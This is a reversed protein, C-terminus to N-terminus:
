KQNLKFEAKINERHEIVPGFKKEVKESIEEFPLVLRMDNRLAEPVRVALDAYRPNLDARNVIIRAKNLLIPSPDRYTLSILIKTTVENISYALITLRRLRWASYFPLVKMDEKKQHIKNEAGGKASVEM